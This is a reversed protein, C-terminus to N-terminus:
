IGTACTRIAGSWPSAPRESAASAKTCKTFLAKGTSSFVVVDDWFTLLRLSYGQASLCRRLHEIQTSKGSGDLGSFSVLLGRRKPTRPNLNRAECQKQKPAHKMLGRLSM